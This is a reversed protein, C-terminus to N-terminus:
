LLQILGLPQLMKELLTNDKCDLQLSIGLNPTVLNECFHPMIYPHSLTGSPQLSLGSPGWSCALCLVKWIAWEGAGLVLVCAETWVGVMRLHVYSNMWAELCESCNNYNQYLSIFYLFFSYLTCSAAANETVYLTEGAPQWLALHEM